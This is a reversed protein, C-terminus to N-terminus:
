FNFNLFFSQIFVFKNMQQDDDLDIYKAFLRYLDKLKVHRHINKVYLRHSITGPSYDKFVPYKLWDLESLKNTSLEEDTILDQKTLLCIDFNDSRIPPSLAQKPEFHNLLGFGDLTEINSNSSCNQEISSPINILLKKKNKNIHVDKDFIEGIVVTPTTTKKTAVKLSEAKEGIIGTKLKKRKRRKWEFESLQSLDNSNLITELESEDDDDDTPIPITALSNDEDTKYIDFPPDLGLHIMLRLVNNYFQENNFLHNNIWNLIEKTVKPFKYNSNKDNEFLCNSKTLKLQNM